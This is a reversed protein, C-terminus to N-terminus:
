KMRKIKIFCAYASVKLKNYEKKKCLIPERNKSQECYKFLSFFSCEIGALWLLDLGCGKRFSVYFLCIQLHYIPLHLNWNHFELFYTNM